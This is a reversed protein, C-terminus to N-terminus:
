HANAWCLWVIAFLFIFGTVGQFTMNLALSSAARAILVVYVLDYFLELWTVQREKDQESFRRPPKWWGPFPIRSMQM